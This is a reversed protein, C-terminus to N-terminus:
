PSGAKMAPTFATEPPASRRLPRADVVPHRQRPRAVTEGQPNAQHIELNRRELRTSATFCGMGRLPGVLAVPAPVSGLAARARRRSCRAPWSGTAPRLGMGHHAEPRPLLHLWLRRFSRDLFRRDWSARDTGGGVGRFLLQDWPPRPFTAPGARLPGSRQWGPPPCRTGLFGDAPGTWPHCRRTPHPNPVRVHLARIEM